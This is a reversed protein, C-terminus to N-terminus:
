VMAGPRKRLRRPANGRTVRRALRVSESGEKPSLLPSDRYRWKSSRRSACSRWCAVARRPLTPRPPVDEAFSSVYWARRALAQLTQGNFANVGDNEPPHWGASTKV